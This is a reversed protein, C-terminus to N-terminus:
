ILSFNEADNSTNKFCLFYQQENAPDAPHANSHQAPVLMSGACLSIIKFHFVKYHMTNIFIGISIQFFLSAAM